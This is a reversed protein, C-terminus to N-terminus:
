LTSVEFVAIDLARAREIFDVTFDEGKRKEEEELRGGWVAISIAPSSRISGLALAESLIRDNVAKFTDADTAEPPVFIVNEPRSNAIGAHGVKVM